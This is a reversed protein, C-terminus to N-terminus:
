AGSFSLHGRATGSVKLKNINKIGAINAFKLPKTQKQKIHIYYSSEQEKVYRAPEVGM